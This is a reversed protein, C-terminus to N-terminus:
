RRAASVHSDATHLVRCRSRVVLRQWPALTRPPARLAFAYALRIHDYRIVCVIVRFLLRWPSIGHRQHHPYKPRDVPSSGAVVLTVIQPEVLQAVVATFQLYVSNNCFRYKCMYQLAKAALRAARLLVESPGGNKLCSTNTLWATPVQELM